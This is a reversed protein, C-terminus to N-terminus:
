LNGWELFYLFLFFFFNWEDWAKKRVFTKKSSGRSLIQTRVFNLSKVGFNKKEFFFTSQTLILFLPTNYIKYQFFFIQSKKKNPNELIFYIGSLFLNRPFFTTYFIGNEFSNIRHKVCMPNIFLNLFKEFVSLFFHCFKNKWVLFWWKLFFCCLFPGKGHSFIFIWYCWKLDSFGIMLHPFLWGTLFWCYPSQITKSGLIAPDSWLLDDDSLWYVGKWPKEHHGIIESTENTLM